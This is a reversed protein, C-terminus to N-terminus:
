RYPAHWEVLRTLPSPPPMAYKIIGDPICPVHWKEPLKGM